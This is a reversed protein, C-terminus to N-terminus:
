YKRYLVGHDSNFQSAKSLMEIEGKFINLQTQKRKKSLPLKKLQLWLVLQRKRFFSKKGSISSVHIRVIDTVKPLENLTSCQKKDYRTNRSICSFNVVHGVRFLGRDHVICVADSTYREDNYHVNAYYLGTKM